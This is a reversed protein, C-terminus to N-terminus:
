RELVAIWGKARKANIGLDSRGLKSRSYLAITAGGTRELFEVNVTDPFRMLPTRVIFRLGLPRDEVIEINDGSLAALFRQKLATADLPYTRPEDDPTELRCVDAPCLLYQNPKPGKKLTAFTVPGLDPNGALHTWFDNPSYLFLAALAAVAMLTMRIAATLLRGALNLTARLPSSPTM